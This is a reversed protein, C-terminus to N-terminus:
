ITELYFAFTSGKGEKSEIILETNMKKLFKLSINLGLGSSHEGQTGSKSFDFIAHNLKQINKASMGIGSDKIAILVRSSDIVPKVLVEIQGKDPTFKIANSLLNRLVTQLMLKNTSLKIPKSISKQLHIHKQSASIELAEITQDIINEADVEENMNQEINSELKSWDLLNLLYNYQNLASKNIIKTFELKEENSLQNWDAILLSSIGMIGNFPTKLDHAIISYVQDRADNLAKIEKAYQDSRAKLKILERNILSIQDNKYALQDNNKKKNDYLVYILISIILLTTIISISIINILKEKALAANNIQQTKKLNIIELSKQKNQYQAEIKNIEKIKDLNYISDKIVTYLKFYELEKALDNKRQYVKSIAEYASKQSPLIKLEQALKLSEQFYNLSSDLYPKYNKQISKEYFLKGFSNLVIIESKKAKYKRSIDLSKLFFYQASDYKKELFYTQGINTYNSAKDPNNQTEDKLQLSKLFYYRASDTKLSDLFINGINLYTTSARLQDKSALDIQLAKHYYELALHYNGLKKHVLGINSISASLGISDDVKELLKMSKQFSELSNPYDGRIGHIIGQFTYVRNLEFLNGLKDFIKESKKFYFLASDYEGMYWQSAGYARYNKALGKEFHHKLSLQIGKLAIKKSSDPDISNYNDSLEALLITKTTDERAANLKQLIQDTKNTRAEITQFPYQFVILIILIINRNM